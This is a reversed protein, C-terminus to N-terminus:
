PTLAAPLHRYCMIDSQSLNLYCTIHGSKPPRPYSVMRLPAGISANQPSPPHYGNLFVLTRPALFDTSGKSTQPYLLKNWPCGSDGPRSQFCGPRSGLDPFVLMKPTRNRM